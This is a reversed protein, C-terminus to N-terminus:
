AAEGEGRALREAHAETAIRGFASLFGVEIGTPPKGARIMDFVCWQLLWPAHERTMYGLAAEALRGGAECDAGYAGSPTVSWFCRTAGNGREAGTPDRVFPLALVPHAGDEDNTPFCSSVGM